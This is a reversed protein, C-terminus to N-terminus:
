RLNQRVIINLEPNDQIIKNHLNQRPSRSGLKGRQIQLRQKAVRDIRHAPALQQQFFVFGVE